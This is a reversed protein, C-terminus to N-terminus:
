TFAVLEPELAPDGDGLADADWFRLQHLIVEILKDCYHVCVVFHVIRVTNFLDISIVKISMQIWPHRGCRHSRNHRYTGATWYCRLSRNCGQYKGCIGM